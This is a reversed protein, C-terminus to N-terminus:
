LLVGSKGAVPAQGNLYAARFLNTAPFDYADGTAPTANCHLVATTANTWTVSTINATAITWNSPVQLCGTVMDQAFVVTVKNAGATASTITGPPLGPAIPPCNKNPRSRNRSRRARTYPLPM